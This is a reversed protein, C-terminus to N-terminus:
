WITGSETRYTSETELFGPFVYLCIYTCVDSGKEIWQIIGAEHSGREAETQVFMVQPGKRDMTHSRCRAKSVWGGDFFFFMKARESQIRMGDQLLDAYNMLSTVSICVWTWLSFAWLPDCRVRGGMAQLRWPHLKIGRQPRKLVEHNPLLHTLEHYIKMWVFKSPVKLMRGRQATENIELLQM